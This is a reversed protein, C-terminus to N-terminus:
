IEKCTSNKLPPPNNSKSIKEKHSKKRSKVPKTPKVYNRTNSDNEIDDDKSIEQYRNSTTIYKNNASYNKSNRESKNSVKFDSKSPALPKM